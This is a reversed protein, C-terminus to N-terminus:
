PVRYVEVLAVGSSSNKGRVIATYSGRPLTAVIACERDDTPAFGSAQVAAQQTDRWNDNSVILAGSSDRLELTPDQLPGPVNFQALSPGLARVVVNVSGAGNAGLGAGVVFGGIMVNDSTEVRGRTSINVLQAAAGTALDYVEVLAVGSAGGSGRVIATYPGPPLNLVLASERNDGPPFGSAQIEAEQSDRWNDNSAIVNGTQDHMELTPDALAGTVGFATLSPGMARVIVRKPVTGTIVFGGILVNDGTQASLRTSLNIPRGSRVVSAPDKPDTVSRFESLNDEGDGDADGAQGGLQPSNIEALSFRAAQWSAFDVQPSLGVRTIFPDPNGTRTDVWVPVAPVNANTAPAVALYDGLMYGSGTLPALTADTSVSSIRLNPQWTVGGDFSQALFMDVMTNSDPNVRHDYFAVSLNQGNSSAAIAPNFVGLNAPNDSVPIPTSWTAGGNTSKTFMIRPVGAARAQYVVYLNSSTGDTVASPLISGTRIAPENYEIAPAIVIPAGFTVGGDNSLVVTAAETGANPGGVFFTWYILALRGDPLFVPQSGQANTSSDHVFAIPSWTVGGNDSYTRVIPSVTDSSFLTFTIIIRGTSSTGPFTNITMWNKDTFTNSNPPQYVVVPAEFSQGGNTSRSLIVAGVGFNTDVSAIVNLFVIGNLDIAAVPDTARFYPGGVTRTLGPILARSWSLGGNSSVAYGCDLAGGNTFRGEQFTAVLFDPNTPSRIIHPEAQARMNAPLAAPDDGLRVNPGVRRDLAVEATANPISPGPRNPDSAPSAM